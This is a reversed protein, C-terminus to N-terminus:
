GEGGLDEGPAPIRTTRGVPSTLADPHMLPNADAIQWWVAPDGLHRAALNDVRDGQQIRVTRFGGAAEPMPVFRRRLYRVTRGDPLTTTAIAIGHYRSPPPFRDGGAGALLMAELPNSM